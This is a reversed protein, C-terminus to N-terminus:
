FRVKIEGAKYITFDRKYNFLGLIKSSDSYTVYVRISDTNSRDIYISDPEIVVNMEKAKEIIYKRHETDSQALGIETVDEVKESISGYTIHVRAIQYITYGVVMILLLIFIIGFGTIGRNKM